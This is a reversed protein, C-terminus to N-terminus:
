VKRLNSNLVSWQMGGQTIVCAHTSGIPGRYQAPEWRELGINWIEVTDGQQIDERYVPVERYYGPNSRPGYSLRRTRSRLPAPASAPSALDRRIAASLEVADAPHSCFWYIDNWTLGDDIEVTEGRLSVVNGQTEPRAARTAGFSRAVSLLAHISDADHPSWQIMTDSIVRESIDGSGLDEVNEQVVLQATKM